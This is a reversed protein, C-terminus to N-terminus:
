SAACIPWRPSAKWRFSRTALAWAASGLAVGLASAIGFSLHLSKDTWLMLLELGYALPAVFSLSELTRTNTGFYGTELTEPNEGFGLHGSVYWGGVVLAGLALGVLWQAPNARFRRDAFVFGLLLLAVAGAALWRATQPAIGVSVLLTPLGQDKWGFRAPRDGGPGALHCAVPRVPGQPTMYASIALRLVVLSRLSGGGGLRILNKNACGGALSMGVGFLAGGVM